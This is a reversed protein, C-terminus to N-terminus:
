VFHADQALQRGAWHTRSRLNRIRDGIPWTSPSLRHWARDKESERAVILGRARAVRTGQFGDDLRVNVLLHFHQNLRQDM